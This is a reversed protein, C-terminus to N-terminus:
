WEAQLRTADATAPTADLEVLLQGKRVARGEQVRIATVTATETPQVTKTRDSPVLKGRATAVVDMRGVTAWGLTCLVLGILCGMAVRPAPSVPTEQLELTAPLFAAEHPLRRPAAGHSREKWSQRFVSGYRRVISLTSFWRLSM